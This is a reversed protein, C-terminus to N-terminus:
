NKKTIKKGFVSHNFVGSDNNRGYDGVDIAVFKADADVVAQLIISHYKKYNYYLSGVNYPQELRIHKGDIAGCCNPFNWLEEFRKAIEKWKEETPTPMYIPTLTDCIAQCVDMVINGITTAGVRFSYHLSQFREGTALFRFLFILIKQISYFYKM